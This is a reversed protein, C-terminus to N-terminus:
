EGSTEPPPGDDPHHRMGMRGHHMREKLARTLEKRQDPSLIGRVRLLTRLHGKEMATRLRGIEDAQAMISKETPDDADLLDRMTEHATRLERMLARQDSRAEDLVADVRTRVADPLDVDELARALPPGGRPPGDGPRALGPTALLGATVVALTLTNLTKM